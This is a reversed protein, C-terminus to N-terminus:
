QLFSSINLSLPLCQLAKLLAVSLQLVLNMVTGLGEPFLQLFLELPHTVLSASASLGGGVDWVCMCLCVCTGGVWVCM